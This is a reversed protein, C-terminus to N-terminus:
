GGTRRVIRGDPLTFTGDGNDTMGEPLATVPQSQQEPQEEDLQRLKQLEIFDATTNGPTGLFTAVEELYSSLKLQSDKKRQVWRKLDPGDLNKPLATSLAFALESESLAGFTTDGIVDLGLRGQLNDLAVSASRVSPLKSAIVGTEAGDDILRIVEDLNNVNTKIKGIQDFANESRTIAAKAAQTSAAITPETALKVDAEIEAIGGAKGVAIDALEQATERTFGAQRGFQNAAQIDAQTADPAQARAQLARFTEFDRQSATGTVTSPSEIAGFRQATAIADQGLAQVQAVKQGDTLDPNDIVTALLEQSDSPTGGRNNVDTINQITKARISALDTDGQLDTAFLALSRLNNLQQSQEVGSEAQAAQAQLLQNQIPALERNQQLTQAQQATSLANSFINGISGADAALSIRPDIAM